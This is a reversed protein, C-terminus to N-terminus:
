ITAHERQRRTPQRAMPLVCTIVTGEGPSSTARFTAGILRARLPMIRLGMGTATSKGPEFGSGDDEIRLELGNEMTELTVAIRGAHSHTAANRVAEQAIRFLHETVTSDHVLVPSECEFTCPVRFLDTTTAAMEELASMLGEADMAVPDLGRASQRSLRISKQILEVVTQARAAGAVGQEALEEHLLQCTLATAALHQCLGDHLDRGIRRQERESVNLLEEQVRERELIEKTVAAARERVRAELSANLERLRTVVFVVIADSFVQVTANWALVPVNRFSPDGNSINAAIWVMIGLAVAAISFRWGVYWAGLALPLLYYASMSIGPGTACDIYGVVLTLLVCYGAMATRPQRGLFHFISNM